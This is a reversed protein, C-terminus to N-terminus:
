SPVVCKRLKQHHQERGQRWARSPSGRQRERKDKSFAFFKASVARQAELEARAREKEREVQQALAKDEALQKELSRRQIHGGKPAALIGEPDQM